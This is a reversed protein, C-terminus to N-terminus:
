SPGGSLDSHQSGPHPLTLLPTFPASLHFSLHLLIQKNMGTNYFIHEILALTILSPFPGTSLINTAM